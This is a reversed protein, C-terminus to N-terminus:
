TVIEYDSLEPTLLLQKFESISKPWVTLMGREDIYWSQCGAGMWLTDKAAQHIEDNYLNTANETPALQKIKDSGLKTVLKMIYDCQMEAIKILSFNGIPSHPGQLMFFNPFDPLAVSKYARVGNEWYQDVTVGNKGVLEIPRVYSQANFGTALVVVDFEHLVGDTTRIGNEEFQAIGQTILNTQPQQMASYFGDSLIFRKCGFPFDPTLRKRLAKDKVSKLHSEAIMRFANIFLVRDKGFGGGLIGHYLDDYRQHLWGALGPFQKLVTKSLESYRTDFAPLVWQATRQLM